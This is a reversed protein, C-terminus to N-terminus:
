PVFRVYFGVPRKRGKKAGLGAKQGYLVPLAVHWINVM